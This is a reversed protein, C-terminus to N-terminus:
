EGRMMDDLIKRIDEEDEESIGLFPRAPINVVVKKKTVWKGNFKFHLAKKRKPKIIRGKDGFQHTTAKISNTGVAMGTKDYETHISNKMKATKVLTKGGKERVRLSTKWKKGDPGTSTDFRRITSERLGEGIAAMAGATDVNELHSVDEMLKRIDGTVEVHVHVSPM